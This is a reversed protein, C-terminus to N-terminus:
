AGCATKPRTIRTKWYEVKEIEDALVPDMEETSTFESHSMKLGQYQEWGYEVLEDRTM